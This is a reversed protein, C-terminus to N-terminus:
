FFFSSSHYSFKVHHTDMSVIINDIKHGNKELFDSLRQADEDAGPVSCSGGSHFDQQPDIIFLTTRPIENEEMKQEAVEDNKTHNNEQEDKEFKGNTETEPPADINDTNHLTNSALLSQKDPNRANQYITPGDEKSSKADDAQNKEDNVPQVTVGPNMKITGNPDIKGDANICPQDDVDASVHLQGVFVVGPDIEMCKCSIDGHIVATSRLSILNANLNGIM